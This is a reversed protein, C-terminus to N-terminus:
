YTIRLINLIIPIPEPVNEQIRFLRIRFLDIRIGM